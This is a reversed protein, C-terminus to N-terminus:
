YSAFIKNSEQQKIQNLLSFISNWLLLKSELIQEIVSLCDRYKNNNNNCLRVLLSLTLTGHKTFDEKVYREQYYSKIYYHFSKTQKPHQKNLSSTAKIFPKPLRVSQEASFAAAIERLSGNKIIQQITIIYNKLPSSLYSLDLFSHEGHSLSDIMKNISSTNANCDSMSQLYWEFTSLGGVLENSEERCVLENIMRRISPDGVPIWPASACTLNCQMAKLLSLYGWVTFIHHEMFVKLDEIFHICNFLPHNNLSNDLYQIRSSKFSLM